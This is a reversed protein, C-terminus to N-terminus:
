VTNSVLNLCMCTCGHLSSLFSLMTSRFWLNLKTLRYIFTLVNSSRVNFVDLFEATLYDPHRLCLKKADELLNSGITVKTDKFSCLYDLLPPTMLGSGVLLVRHMKQVM